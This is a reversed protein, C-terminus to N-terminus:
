GNRLPDCVQEQWLYMFRRTWSFSHNTTLGFIGGLSFTGLPVGLVSVQATQGDAGMPLGHIAAIVNGNGDIKQWYYHVYNTVLVRVQNLM